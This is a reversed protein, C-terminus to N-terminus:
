RACRFHVAARAGDLRVTEGLRVPSAPERAMAAVAAGAEDLTDIVVMWGAGAACASRTVREAPSRLAPAGRMERLDPSLLPAAHLGTAQAVLPDNATLILADRPLTAAWRVVPAYDQTASRQPVIWGANAYGHTNVVRCRELPLALAALVIATRVVGHRRSEGPIARLSSVLLLTVLPLMGWLFRDPSMPWIVVAAFYGLTGFLSVSRWGRLRWLGLACLVLALVAGASGWVQRAVHWIGGLQAVVLAILDGAGSVSERWMGSYSGYSGIWAAPIEHAHERTWAVWALAPLLMFAALTAERQRMAVPNGKETALRWAVALTVPILITRALPLLSALAAAALARMTSPARGDDTDDALDFVLGLMLWALPESFLTSTVARAPVLLVAIAAAPGAVFWPLGFRRAGWRAWPVVSAAALLVNGLKLWALVGISLVGPRLFSWLALWLPYLPPYHVGAPAGPLALHRYGAGSALAKALDLYIGDDYFVGVPMPPPPALLVVLVAIAFGWPAWADARTRALPAPASTRDNM